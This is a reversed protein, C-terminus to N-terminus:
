KTSRFTFVNLICFSELSTKLHNHNFQFLRGNIEDM